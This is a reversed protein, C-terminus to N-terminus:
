RYGYRKLFNEVNILLIVESCFEPTNRLKLDVARDLFFLKM